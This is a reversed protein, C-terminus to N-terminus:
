SCVYVTRQSDDTDTIEDLLGPFLDHLLQQRQFSPHSSSSGTGANRVLWM